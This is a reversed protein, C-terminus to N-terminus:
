ALRTVINAKQYHWYGYTSSDGVELEELKKSWGDDQMSGDRNIEEETMLRVFRDGDGFVTGMVCFVKENSMENFSLIGNDFKTKM